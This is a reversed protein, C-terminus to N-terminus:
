GESTRPGPHSAEGIRSGHPGTFVHLVVSADQATWSDQWGGFAQGHPGALFPQSFSSHPWKRPLFLSSTALGVPGLEGSQLDCYNEHSLGTSVYSHEALLPLGLALPWCGLGWIVIFSLLSRLELIRLIGTFPLAFAFLWLHCSFDYTGSLMGRLSGALTHWWSPRLIADDFVQTRSSFTFIMFLEVVFSCILSVYGQSSWTFNTVLSSAQQFSWRM